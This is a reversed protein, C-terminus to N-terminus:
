FLIYNGISASNGGIYVLSTSKYLPVTTISSIFGNSLTVPAGITLDNSFTWFQGTEATNPLTISVAYGSGTLAATKMRFVTSANQPTMTIGDISNTSVVQIFGISGTPGTNTGYGWGFAGTEGRPGYDGQQGQRGPPGAM